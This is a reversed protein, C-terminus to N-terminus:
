ELSYSKRIIILSNTLIVKEFVSLFPFCTHTTYRCGITDIIFRYRCSEAFETELLPPIAVSALTPLSGPLQSNCQLDYLIM